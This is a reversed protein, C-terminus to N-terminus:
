RGAFSDVTEIFKLNQFQRDVDERQYFVRGNLKVFRLGRGQCRKTALTGVTTPVNWVMKQYQVLEDPTLLDPWCTRRTTPVQTDEPHKQDQM